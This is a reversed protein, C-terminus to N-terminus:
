VAPLLVGTATTFSEWKSRQQMTHAHALLALYGEPLLTNPHMHTRCELCCWVQRMEEYTVIGDPPDVDYYKYDIQGVQATAQGSISTDAAGCRCWWPSALNHNLPTAIYQLGGHVADRHHGRSILPFSLTHGEELTRNHAGRELSTM